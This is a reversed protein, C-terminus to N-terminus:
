SPWGTRDLERRVSLENAVNDSGWVEAAESLLAAALDDGPVEGRLTLRPGQKVLWLAEPIFVRAASPVIELQDHVMRVGWVATAIEWLRRRVEESPVSGTLTVDRGSVSLGVGDVGSDQVSATSRTRIDDEIAPGRCYPCLVLLVLLGLLGLLANRHM